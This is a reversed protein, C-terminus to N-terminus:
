EGSVPEIGTVATLKKGIKIQGYGNQIWKNNLTTIAEKISNDQVHVYRMTTRIDTHALINQVVNIPIGNKTLRTGVTHRIGHFGIHKLNIKTCVKHLIRTPATYPNQTDPNVFVYENIRPLQLLVSYLSDSIYLRITKFGKNDQPQIQIFRDSLNVQTWKLYQINAVRLGTQFACVVFPIFDPRYHRLGKILTNEEEPTYFKITEKPEKFLKVKTCPNSTLLNNDIALNYAKSLCSIYRNITSLSLHKETRLWLRLTEIHKPQIDVANKFEGFFEIFTKVKEKPNRQRNNNANYQQYLQLITFLKTKNGIDRVIVGNQIQQLKYKFQNEIKLAETKNTAGSCLYFHREGNLQFRCYYKNNKQIITM